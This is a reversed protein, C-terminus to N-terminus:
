RSGSRRSRDHEPELEMTWSLEDGGIREFGLREYLRQAPNHRDVRLRIPRHTADAEEVLQMLLATGLGNGRREPLLAIDIVHLAEARRDVDLRGIREHGALVIHFDAEPWTGLRHARQSEFQMTLFADARDADWGWAAVEDRRTSAYLARLFDLDDNTVPRTSLPGTM